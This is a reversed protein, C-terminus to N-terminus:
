EAFPRCVKAKLDLFRLYITQKEKPLTDLSVTRPAESSLIAYENKLYLRRKEKATEFLNKFYPSEELKGSVLFDLATYLAIAILSVSGIGIITYAFTPWFSFATEYQKYLIVWTVMMGFIITPPNFLFLPLCRRDNNEKQFYISTDSKHNSTEHTLPYTIARWETNRKGLIVGKFFVTYTKVVLNILFWISFLFPQITYAVIRRRRYQCQDVPKTEYFWNVWKQEWKPPEKPFAEKPVHISMEASTEPFLHAYGHERDYFDGRLKLSEGREDFVYSRYSRYDLRGLFISKLERQSKNRSYIIGAFIKIEGSSKLQLYHMMQKLPVVERHEIMNEGISMLLLLPEEIEAELIKGATEKDISWRIPLVSDQIEKKEISLKLM